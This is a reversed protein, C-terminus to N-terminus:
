WIPNQTSAADYLADTDSIRAENEPLKDAIAKGIGQAAGTVSAVQGKLEVMM